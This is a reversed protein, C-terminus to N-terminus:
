RLDQAMVTEFWDMAYTSWGRPIGHGGPHLIFELATGDDCEDWRRVWFPGETDFTDARLGDCGNEARWITMAHWVDGQLITGGGLPRGELPVTKDKWGHTHLLKVPGACDVPHPRWFSGGVPVYAAFVTPDQCAIYSAMSGGISFGGLMIQQRDIGFRSAADDAVQKFFAMEDRQQPRDPHFSWGPGFSSNERKLGNPAIVAYGRANLNDAMSGPRTSGNGSGGAGHLFILAPIGSTAGEPLALHYTGMPVDCPEPDPGCGAFATTAFLSAFASLALRRIIKTFM